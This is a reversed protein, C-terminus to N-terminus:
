QPRRDAIRRNPAAELVRAMTEMYVDSIKEMRCIAAFVPSGPPLAARAAAIQEALPAPEPVGSRADLAPHRHPDRPVGLWRHTASIRMVSIATTSRRRLPHLGLPMLNCRFPVDNRSVSASPTSGELVVADLRDAAMAAAVAEPERLKSFDRLTLGPLAQFLATTEPSCPRQAYIFCANESAGLKSHGHLMTYLIRGIAFSGTCEYSWCFYGIRLPRGAPIEPQPKAARPYVRDLYGFYPNLM